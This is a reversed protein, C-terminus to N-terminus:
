PGGTQHIKVVNNYQFLTKTIVQLVYETSFLIQSAPRFGWGGLHLFLDSVQSM